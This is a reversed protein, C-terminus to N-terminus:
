VANRKKKKKNGKIKKNQQINEFTKINEMKFQSTFEKISPSKGCNGDCDSLHSNNESDSKLYNKTLNDRSDDSMFNLM